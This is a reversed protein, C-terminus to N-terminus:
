ATMSLEPRAPLRVATARVVRFEGPTMGTELQFARYFQRVSAFGSAEAIRAVSRARDRLLLQRAHRVRMRRLMAAPSTGLSEFARHLTRRSVLCGRAIGDVTLRPDTFHRRLFVLVQGRSLVRAPKAIVQTRACIGVVSRVLDLGGTALTAAHEPQRLDAVGAFFRAIVEGAGTAPIHLPLPLEPTDAFANPPLRLVVQAWDGRMTWRFPEGARYVVLDGPGVQVTQGSQDMEAYGDLQISVLVDDRQAQSAGTARRLTQPGARLVALDFGTFRQSAIRGVSRATAGFEVRVPVVAQSVRRVWDEGACM